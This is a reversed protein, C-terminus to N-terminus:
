FNPGPSDISGSRNPNNTASARDTTLEPVGAPPEIVFARERKFELDQFKRWTDELVNDLAFTQTTAMEQRDRVGVTRDVYLVDVPVRSILLPAADAMTLTQGDVVVHQNNALVAEAYAVLNARDSEDKDIWRKVIDDEPM